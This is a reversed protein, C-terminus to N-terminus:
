TAQVNVAACSFEICEKKALHLQLEDINRKYSAFFNRITGEKIIGMRTANNLLKLEDGKLTKETQKLLAEVDGPKHEGHAIEDM